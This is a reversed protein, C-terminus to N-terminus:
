FLKTSADEAKKKQEIIKIHKTKEKTKLQMDVTFEPIEEQEDFSFQLKPSLKINDDMLVMRDYKSNSISDMFSITVMGKKEMGLIDLFLERIDVLALVM